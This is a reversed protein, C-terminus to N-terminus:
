QQAAQTASGGLTITFEVEQLQNQETKTDNKIYVYLVYSDSLASNATIQGNTVIDVNTTAAFSGEEGVPAGDKYLRYKIDSVNGGTLNVTSGDPAQQTTKLNIATQMNVNYVGDASSTGSVVFPIATIDKNSAFDDTWTTPKINKINAVSADTIAVNLNMNSTTVTQATAQDSASFYAFTAGALAVLLTAAGIVTLVIKGKMDEREM